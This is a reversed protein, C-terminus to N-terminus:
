LGDFLLIAGVFRQDLKRLENIIVPQPLVISLDGDQRLFALESALSVMQIALSSVLCRDVVAPCADFIDAEQLVQTTSWEQNLMWVIRFM